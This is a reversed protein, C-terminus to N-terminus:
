HEEKSKKDKIDEAIAILRRFRHNVGSVTLEGPLISAIESNSLERDSCRLQAIQRLQEPLKDFGMEKRILEIAEYQKSSAAITRKLNANEFNVKRNVTNRVDKIMKTGMVSMSSETAGMISLVDEIESSNKFYVIYAGGRVTIKPKPEFEDFLKVLDESLGKTPVSFELHYEKEPDTVTGSAIFAGRLFAAFTKDDTLHAFNIRRKACEGTHGLRESIIRILKRDSVCIKYNGAASVECETVAGSFLKVADSYAHAARENETLISLESPSFARGFLLMAYSQAFECLPDNEINLLENKVETAFSM